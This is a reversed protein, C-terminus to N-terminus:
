KRRIRLRGLLVLDLLREPLLWALLIGVRTDWGVRYRARPRRTTLARVVVAAVREAPVAHAPTGARELRRLVGGYHESAEPPFRSALDLARERSADWIPTRTAGPQVVVVAVGARALELRFADSFAELAFKSAGYAGSFPSVIRGNVSSVNVIRGRAVRLLPLCAQTLAVVGFVNVEFQHRVADLPLYEMPGAVVIAANNVLGWLGAPGVTTRLSAAAAAVADPRAVDLMLPAIRGASAEQLAAGDAPDRLGALVHFGQADLALACARGIGKSAGTVLVFRRPATM